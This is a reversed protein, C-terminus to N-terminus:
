KPWKTPLLELTRQRLFKIGDLRGMEQWKELSVRPIMNGIEFAIAEENIHHNSKRLAQWVKIPSYV